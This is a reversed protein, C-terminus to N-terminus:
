QLVWKLYHQIFENRDLIGWDALIYYGIRGKGQADRDRVFSINMGFEDKIAAIQRKISSEPIQTVEHIYKLSPKSTRSLVYIIDFKRKTDKSIAM